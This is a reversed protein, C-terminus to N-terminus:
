PELTKVRNDLDVLASKVLTLLDCHAKHHQYQHLDGVSLASTVLDGVRTIETAINDTGDSM